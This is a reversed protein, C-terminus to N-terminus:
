PRALLQAQAAQERLGEGLKRRATFLGDARDELLDLRLRELDERALERRHDLRAEVDDAGEDDELLLGLVAVEAHDDALQAGVDFAAEQERLRHRAVRLDEAPEEDR